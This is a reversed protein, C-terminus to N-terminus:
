NDIKLEKFSDTVLKNLKQPDLGVQRAVNDSCEEISYHDNCIDDFREM